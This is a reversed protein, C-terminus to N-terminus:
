GRPADEQIDLWEGVETSCAFLSIMATHIPAYCPHDAPLTQLARELEDAM